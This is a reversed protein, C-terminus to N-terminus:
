SETRKSQIRCVSITKINDEDTLKVTCRTGDSYIMDHKECTTGKIKAIHLINLIMQFAIGYPIGDEVKIRIEQM